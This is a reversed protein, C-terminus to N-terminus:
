DKKAAEKWWKWLLFLIQLIIYTLTALAVLENLTWATLGTGVVAPMAKITQIKIEHEIM